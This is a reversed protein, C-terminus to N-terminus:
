EPAEEGDPAKKNQGFLVAGIYAQVLKMAEEMSAGAGMAARFFNLSMEATVGMANKLGEMQKEKDM